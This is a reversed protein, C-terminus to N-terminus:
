VFATNSGIGNEPLIEETGNSNWSQIDLYFIRRFMAGLGFIVHIFWTSINPTIGAKIKPINQVWNCFIDQMAFLIIIKESNLMLHHFSTNMVHRFKSLWTVQKWIRGVPNVNLCTEPAPQWGLQHTRPLTSSTTSLDGRDQAFNLFCIVRECQQYYVWGWSWGGLMNSALPVRCSPSIFAAGLIWLSALSFSPIEWGHRFYLCITQIPVYKRYRKWTFCRSSLASIRAFGSSLTVYEVSNIGHGSNAAAQSAEANPLNEFYGVSVLTNGALESPFIFM